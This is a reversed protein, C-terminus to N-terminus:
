LVHLLKLAKRSFIAKFEAFPVDEAHSLKWKNNRHFIHPHKATCRAQLHGLFLPAPPPAGLLPCQTLCSGQPSFLNAVTHNFITAM